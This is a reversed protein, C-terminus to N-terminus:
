FQRESRVEYFAMLLSSELLHELPISPRGSGAFIGDFLPSM